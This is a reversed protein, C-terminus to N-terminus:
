MNLGFSRLHPTYKSDNVDTDYKGKERMFSGEVGEHVVRGKM